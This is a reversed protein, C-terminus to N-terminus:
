KVADQSRLRSAQAPSIGLATLIDIRSAFVAAALPLYSDSSRPRPELYILAGADVLAQTDAELSNLPEQDRTRLFGM